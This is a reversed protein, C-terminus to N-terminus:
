ARNLLDAIEALLKDGVDIGEPNESLLGVQEAISKHISQLVATTKAAFAAIYQQEADNYAENTNEYTKNFDEYSTKIANCQVNIEGFVTTNAQITTQDVENQIEACKKMLGDSLPGFTPNFEINIDDNLRSLDHALDTLDQCDITPDSQAIASVLVALEAQRSGAALAHKKKTDNMRESQATIERSLTNVREGIVGQAVDKLNTDGTAQDYDFKIEPPPPPPPPPPPIMSDLTTAADTLLTKMEDMFKSHDPAVLPLAPHVIRLQPDITDIVTNIETIRSAWDVV